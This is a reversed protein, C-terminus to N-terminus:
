ESLHARCRNIAETLPCGMVSTCPTVDRLLALHHVAPGRRIGRVDQFEVAVGGVEAPNAAPGLSGEGAHVLVLEQSMMNVGTLIHM